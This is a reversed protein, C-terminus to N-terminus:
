MNKFRTKAVNAYKQVSNECCKCIKTGLKINTQKESILAKLLRTTGCLAM